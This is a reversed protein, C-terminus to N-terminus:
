VLNEEKQHEYLFVAVQNINQALHIWAVDQLGTAQHDMKNGNEQRLRLGLPPEEALNRSQFEALM